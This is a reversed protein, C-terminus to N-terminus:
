FYMMQDVDPRYKAELKALSGQSDAHKHGKIAAGATGRLRRNQAWSRMKRGSSPSQEDAISNPGMVVPDASSSASHQAARVHNRVRTRMSVPRVKVGAKAIEADRRRELDGELCRIADAIDTELAAAVRYNDCWVDFKSVDTTLTGGNEASRVVHTLRVYCRGDADDAKLPSSQAGGRRLSAVALRKVVSCRSLDLRHVARQKSRHADRSLIILDNFLYCRGKTQRRETARKMFSVEIKRVFRRRPTILDGCGGDEGGLEEYAEIVKQMSESEGVKANVSNAIDEVTSAASRLRALDEIAAAARVSDRRAGEVVADAVRGGTTALANAASARATNLNREERKSMHRLVERFLLPYKCLRQVPKVLLSKFSFHQNRPLAERTAVVKAVEQSEKILRDFTELAGNYGMCYLSYCKFFPMVKNFANAYLATVSDFGAPAADSSALLERMGDGIMRLLESNCKLIMEANLFIAANQEATLIPTLPLQYEEVLAKLQIVYDLETIAIEKFAAVSDEAVKAGLGSKSCVDREYALVNAFFSEFVGRHDHRIKTVADLEGYATALADLSAARASAPRSGGRKGTGWKRVPKRAAARRARLNSTKRKHTADGPTSAHRFHQADPTSSHRFHQTPSSPNKADIAAAGSASSSAQERVSNAVIAPVSPENKGERSKRRKKEDKSSAAQTRSVPKVKARRYTSYAKILALAFGGFVSDTSRGISRVLVKVGDNRTLLLASLGGPLTGKELKSMSAFGFRFSYYNGHKHHAHAAGKRLSMSLRTKQSKRCFYATDNLILGAFHKGRSSRTGKGDDRLILDLADISAVYTRSPSLSPKNKMSMEAGDDIQKTQKEDNLSLAGFEDSMSKKELGKGLIWTADPNGPSLHRLVFQRASEDM